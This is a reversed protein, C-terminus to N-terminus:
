PGLIPRWSEKWERNHKDVHPVLDWLLDYWVHVTPARVCCWISAFQAVMRRFLTEDAKKAFKDFSDVVSTFRLVRTSAHEGLRRRVEEDDLHSPVRVVGRERDEEAEEEFVRCERESHCVDVSVQSNAYAENRLFRPNELFSYERFDVYKTNLLVNVELVHDLPCVFPRDFTSGPITGDHPAWWRDNGCFLKPMVLTRNLARALGIGQRIQMLQHNVLDFHGKTDKLEMKLGLFAGREVMEAPVDADYVLLGNPPAYYDEHDYWLKKERFRHRKGETGSYQFTAHIVAPTLGMAQPMGQVFYTHGNCFTSVPLIGVNVRNGFARFSRKDPNVRFDRRLLDNFANQDWYNTDSEIMRVWEGLFSKTAESSRFYLIGINYAERTRDADELQVGDPSTTRLADTSTLIDLDPHKGFITAPDQLWVTDVDSVMVDFDMNLFEQILKIKRRAMKYFTKTGWGFDSQPFSHSMSFANIGRDILGRLAEDDMAGVVYKTVNLENLHSVWNEIFGIYHLNGFSVTIFNDKAHREVLDRTLKYAALDYDAKKRANKAKKKAKKKAKAAKKTKAKGGRKASAKGEIGAPAADDWAGNDSDGGRGGRFLLDKGTAVTSELNFRRGPTSAGLILLLAVSLFILCVSVKLLVSRWLDGRQQGPGSGSM